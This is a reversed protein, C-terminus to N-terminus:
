NKSVNDKRKSSKSVKYFEIVPISPNVGALKKNFVTEHKLIDDFVAKGSLVEILCLGLSLLFLTGFMRLKCWLHGMTHGMNLKDLPQFLVMSVVLFPGLGIRAREM